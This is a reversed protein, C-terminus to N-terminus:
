KGVVTGSEIIELIHEHVEDVPAKGAKAAQLKLYSTILDRMLGDMTKGEHTALTELARLTEKSVSVAYQEHKTM